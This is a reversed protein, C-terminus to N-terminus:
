GASSRGRLGSGAVSLQFFTRILLPFDAQLFHDGRKADVRSPHRAFGFSDDDPRAIFCSQRRLAANLRAKSAVLSRLNIVETLM